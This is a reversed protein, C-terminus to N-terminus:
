GNLAERLKNAFATGHKAKFSAILSRVHGKGKIRLERKLWRVVCGVCKMDFVGMDSSECCACNAEKKGM